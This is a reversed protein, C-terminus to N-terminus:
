DKPLSLEYTIVVGGSMQQAWALLIQGETERQEREVAIAQVVKDV